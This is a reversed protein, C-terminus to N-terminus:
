AVAEDENDDAWVDVDGIDIEVPAPPIVPFRYNSGKDQILYLYRMTRSAGVYWVRAEAQSEKVDKIISKQIKRTIGTHLFVAYAELGKAAHITMIRRDEAEKYDIFETRDKIGNIKAKFLKSSKTMEQTADNSKLICIIKQNLKWKDLKTVGDEGTVIVYCGDNIFKRKIKKLEKKYSFGVAECFEPTIDGTDIGLVSVPFYRAIVAIQRDTLERDTRVAIVANALEVETETWGEHKINNTSFLKGDKAMRMAVGLIQYNTRTLHLESAYIPYEDTYHMLFICEGFGYKVPIVPEPKMDDQKLIKDAFNNVHHSLRHSYHLKVEEDAKWENYFDPSAGFVGYISQFPDGAIVVEDAEKEWMKFIAYMQPTLDQFEDIIIIKSEVMIRNALVKQLMDSFDVKKQEKKFNDYDEFFELVKEYPMNVKDFAPYNWCDKPLTLTNRCWNYMDFIDQSYDKGCKDFDFEMDTNKLEEKVFYAYYPYKDLFAKYDKVTMIKPTGLLRYCISHITGIYMKLIRNDTFKFERQIAKRVDVAAAKRFTLVFIDQVQYGNSLYQKYRKKLETTKGCGARGLVKIRKTM